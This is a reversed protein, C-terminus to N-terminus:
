QAVSCYFPCACWRRLLFAKRGAFWGCIGCKRPQCSTQSSWQRQFPAHLLLSIRLIPLGFSVAFIVDNVCRTFVVITNNTLNLDDLKDLLRGVNLDLAYLDAMYLHMNEDITGNLDELEDFRPQMWFGFNSRNVELDQYRDIMEQPAEIPTHVAYIWLNLYFPNDQNREIFDIADDFRLGERGRPDDVLNTTRRLDDIGYELADTEPDGGINWKGIHGTVYGTEKLLETITLAGKFGYQATYNPFWSPNRGTMFGDRTHPCVNGNVNFQTYMTGEAALRDLNPTESYPHGYCALDGYGIDDSLIFVVNPPRQDQAQCVHLQFFFGLIAWGFLKRERLLVKM